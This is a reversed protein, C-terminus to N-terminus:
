KSEEPQSQILPEMAVPVVQEVRREVQEMLVADAKERRAALLGQYLPVAAAVLVAAAALMWWRATAPKRARASVADQIRRSQAPDVDFSFSKLGQVIGELQEQHLACEACDAIHSRLWHEYQPAIGSIRAEDLLFRARQHLDSEM